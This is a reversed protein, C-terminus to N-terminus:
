REVACPGSCRCGYAVSGVGGASRSVTCIRHGTPDSICGTSIVPRDIALGGLPDPSHHGGGVPNTHGGLDARGGALPPQM